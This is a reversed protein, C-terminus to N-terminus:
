PSCSGGPAGLRQEGVAVGEFRLTKDASRRELSLRLGGIAVPPSWDFVGRRGGQLLFEWGTVAGSPDTHLLYSDGPTLGVGDFFLLLDAGDATRVVGPDRVKNPALLWFQDNTFLSLAKIQLPDDSPHNLDAVVTCTSAGETWRVEVNGGPIDWRHSRQTPGLIFTFALGKEAYPDGAHASVAAALREAAPNFWGTRASVRREIMEMRSVEIGGREVTYLLPPGAMGRAFHYRHLETQGDAATETVTFQDTEYRGLPTEVTVVAQTTRDAPFDAHQKLAAWPVVVETEDIHKGDPGETWQLFACMEADGMVWSMGQVLPPHGEQRIQLRITTGVPIGAIFRGISLPPGVTDPAAFAALAACLLFM